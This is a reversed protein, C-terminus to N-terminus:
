NGNMREVAKDLISKMEDMEAKKKAGSSKTQLIAANMQAKREQMQYIDADVTNETVM